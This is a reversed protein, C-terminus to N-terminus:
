PTSLLVDIQGILRCARKQTELELGIVRVLDEFLEGVTPDDVIVARYIKEVAIVAKLVVHSWVPNTANAILFRIIPVLSRPDRGALAPNLKGLRDLEDIMGVIEAADDTEIVLDLADGVNFKRLARNWSAERKPPDRKFVRFNAPMPLMAQEKAENEAEVPAFKLQVVGEALAIAIASADPRADFAAVDTHVKLTHLLAFSTPDFVKITRDASATVLNSRVVCLGVIPRTHATFETVVSSSQGVDIVVIMQGAAAFLRNGRVIVNSVPNGCQIESLMAQEGLNWIKVTGDTSGSAWLNGSELPHVSMVADRHAEMSAIDSRSAINIIKIMGNRCGAIIQNEFPSFALGFVSGADLKWRRHLTQHDYTPYTDVAGDERGLAILIGDKRFAVASFPSKSKAFSFRHQRTKGDIWPGSLGSLAVISYPPIPSFKIRSIASNFQLLTTEKLRSWVLSEAIEDPTRIENVSFPSSGFRDFVRM